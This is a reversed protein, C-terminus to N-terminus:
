RSNGISKLQREHQTQIRTEAVGNRETFQHRCQAIAESFLDAIRRGIGRGDGVM